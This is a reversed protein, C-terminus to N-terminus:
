TCYIANTREIRSHSCYNPYGMGVLVMELEISNKYIKM